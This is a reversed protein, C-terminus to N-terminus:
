RVVTCAKYAAIGGSVGVIVQKPVQKPTRKGDM